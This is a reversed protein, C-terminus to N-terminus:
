RASLRYRELLRRGVRAALPKPVRAALAALLRNRWGTVVQSRGAHAAKMAASVVEDATMSLSPSIAASGLGATTFFNTQTPGPCVAIATVGTGRLEENLAVTWHLVFAKTAGYTAAFPLPQFAATSAITMITGGRARLVPLLLGTLHVVARVNVDIMGLSRSLNPEPFAGYAGFGSNNILMVRGSPIKELWRQVQGAAHEVEGERGLDCGIHHLSKQDRFEEPSTRSVNCFPM